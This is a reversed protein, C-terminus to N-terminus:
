ATQFPIIRFVRKDFNLSLNWSKFIDSFVINQLRVLASEADWRYFIGVDRSLLGVAIVGWTGGGYHVTFCIFSLSVIYPVWRCELMLLSSSLWRDVCMKNVKSIYSFNVLDAKPLQPVNVPMWFSSCKVLCFYMYLNLIKFDMTKLFVLRSELYCKGKFEYLDFPGLIEVTTSEYWWYNQFMKKMENLNDKMIGGLKEIRKM